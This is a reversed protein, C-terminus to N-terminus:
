IEAVVELEQLSKRSLLAVWVSVGVAVLGLGVALSLWLAVLGGEYRVGWIYGLPLAVVFFGFVNIVAGARPRGMARLLGGGVAQIGDFLQFGAIAPLSALVSIAVAEDRTFVAPIWAGFLLVLGGSILSWCAAIAFSVAMARKADELRGAGLLNGVRTSAGISLGLPVMFLLAGVNLTVQYSALATVSIWGAIGAAGAFAWSELASQIGIPVGLAFVQRMGAWSFSHHDWPRSYGVFLKLKKAWLYVGLPLCLSTISSAIAAGELGLAPMGLKGYILVWNLLANSLNAAIAVWFAPWVLGRGQLYVRLAIFLLFGPVSPLRLLCYTGAQSSIEPLQGMWALAPEALAQLLCAPVSSLLAILLGRQLGLAVADRDNRGFGQSIVAEVGLVLGFAFSVIAWHWMNGIGAAALATADFHGLMASDVVGLLMFALQTGAAPVGLRLLPGLEAKM